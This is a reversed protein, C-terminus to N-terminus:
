LMEALKEIYLPQYTHHGADGSKAAAFMAAAVTSAAISLHKTVSFPLLKLAKIIPLALKEGLRNEKRDGTLFSPQFIQLENLGLAKLDREVNGKVQNYFVMSNSNAGMATVILFREFSSGAQAAKALNMPFHYDVQSFKEKSGAVKMTTGLCCYHDSGNLEPQLEEINTLDTIILKIKPDKVDLKRRSLVVVQDYYDTEILLHLLEHGILGTAGSIIAKKQM